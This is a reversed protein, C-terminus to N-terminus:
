IKLFAAVIMPDFQSGACAKIEAIASEHSRGNRFPRDSIMAEYADAVTIIRSLLPIEDGKLGYPYGEGDWREHHHLVIEALSSYSDVSKLIQYGCESHRKVEIYESETLSGNKNLISDPISIKGIDHLLSAIELEKIKESSLGMALGIQKSIRSVEDSHVKERVSKENLTKVIAKVTQHRMSQSEHLKKRYMNDEALTFIDSVSQDMTSKTAHGISVSLKIADMTEYEIRSYIREVIIEADETPTRPLLIIFEDGGIRSIIDDTRCCEFVIKAVRKLLEDGSQHGFADNTLKLGNVDLLVLSIPLNRSTDLRQLEEEYFRRNYLGTLQDRYSLAEILKNTQKQASITDNLADFLDETKELVSNISGRPGAFIDDMSSDLRYSLDSGLDIRQIDKDFRIMPLILHKRQVYALAFVIMLISIATITFTLRLQRESTFYEKIPVFSAIKWTTGQIESFAFYGDIGDLETRTLSESATRMLNALNPSIEDVNLLNKTPHELYDPHALVIGNGDVLFSYGNDKLEQASVMQLISDIKIDGAIVGVLRNDEVVPSAITIIIHDGSANLFADTFILSGQEAAALYWPRTTLDFGEPPTWGSANIMKNDSTGYYISAFNPQDAMLAKLYALIADDPPSTRIFAHAAQITQRKTALRTQIQLKINDRSLIINSRVEERIVNRFTIYEFTMGLAIILVVACGIAYIRIIFKNM